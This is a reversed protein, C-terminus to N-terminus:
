FNNKSKGEGHLDKKRNVDQVKSVWRINNELCWRRPYNVFDENFVIEPNSGNAYNGKIYKAAYTEFFYGYGYHFCQRHFLKDSVFIECSFYTNGFGDTWRQANVEIIEKYGKKM